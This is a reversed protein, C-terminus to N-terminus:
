ISTLKADALILPDGSPHLELAKKTTTVVKRFNYGYGLFVDESPISRRRGNSIVFVEPSEKTKILTGDPFLIPEGDKLESLASADTRLTTRGPYNALLIAKDVIPHKLGSEAYFVAGTDADQVLEGVPFAVADDIPTGAVYDALEAETGLELEEPNFGIAAFTKMSTIHRKTSGVLLYISGTETRVLSLDPFKVPAGMMTDQLAAFDYENLDVLPNTGFRTSLVSRSAIPRFKGGQILAVAGNKENRILTGDPYSFGASGDGFWRNWISWLLRNGHIHPTYAYLAATALNAPRIVKNSIVYNTGPQKMGPPAEGNKLYWDMWAAGADVQKAFGRYKKALTSSRWCGDCLAYGTAWELQKKTPAKSEVASSEKQVLALLYKPNISYRKSADAVIQAASKLKLDVPDVDIVKGLGGKGALFSGIQALNLSSSDRMEGDSLIFHPNFSAATAAAPLLTVLSAILLIAASIRRHM